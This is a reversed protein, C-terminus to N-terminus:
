KAQECRSMLEVLDIRQPERSIADALVDKANKYDGYQMFIKAEDAADVRDRRWPRFDMGVMVAIVFFIGGFLSAYTFGSERTFWIITAGACALLIGVVHHREITRM